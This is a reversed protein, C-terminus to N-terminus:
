DGRVEPMLANREANEATGHIAPDVVHGFAHHQLRIAEGRVDVIGLFFKGQCLKASLASDLVGIGPDRHREVRERGVSEGELVAYQRLEFIFQEDTEIPRWFSKKEAEVITFGDSSPSNDKGDPDGMELVDGLVQGMQRRFEQRMTETVGIRLPKPAPAYEHQSPSRRGNIHCDCKMSCTRIDFETGTSRRQLKVSRGGAFRSGLPLLNPM